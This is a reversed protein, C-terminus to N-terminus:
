RRRARPQGPETNFLPRASEFTTTAAAISRAARDHTKRFGATRVIPAKMAIRLKKMAADLEGLKLDVQHSSM